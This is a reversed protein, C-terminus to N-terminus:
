EAWNEQPPIQQISADNQQLAASLPKLVFNREILRPHPLTLNQNKVHLEGWAILDIDLTRPGWRIASQTRNRGFDREIKLTRKLLDLVASESPELLDMIKGDVVLVANIFDSQNPPGGVAKTQFLPSWQWNISKSSPSINVNEQFLSSIWDCIIVELIPRIAILTDIPSGAKSPINAGLAIALSKSSHSSSTSM